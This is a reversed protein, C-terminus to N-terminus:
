FPDTEKQRRSPFFAPFLGFHSGLAHFLPFCVLITIGQAWKTYHEERYEESYRAANGTMDVYFDTRNLPYGVTIQQMFAEDEELNAWVLRGVPLVVEGSYIDGQTQVSELNIYAAVREGSPLALNYLYMDEYYGEGENRYSIGQSLITFTDMTLLDQVSQARPVDEGALSGAEGSLASHDAVYEEYTADSIASTIAVAGMSILYALLMCVWIDFRLRRLRM